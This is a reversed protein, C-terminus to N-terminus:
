HNPDNIGGRPDGLNAWKDLKHFATKTRKLRDSVFKSTRLVGEFKDEPTMKARVQEIEGATTAFHTDFHHQAVDIPLKHLAAALNKNLGPTSSVAPPTAETNAPTRANNSSGPSPFSDNTYSVPQVSTSSGQGGGANPNTPPWKMLIRTTGGRLETAKEKLNRVSKYRNVLNSNMAADIIGCALAICEDLMNLIGQEEVWDDDFRFDRAFTNESGWEDIQTWLLIM